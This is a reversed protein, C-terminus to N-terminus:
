RVLQEHLRKLTELPETCFGPPVKSTQLITSRTGTLWRFRSAIDLKGIPGGEEGGRCIQEFACLHKNLETMDLEDSFALLLGSDLTFLAQLFKQDKCYLIVGVNLFEEREVRPMVRIVAYEFLHNGPM